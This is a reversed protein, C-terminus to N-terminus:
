YFVLVVGVGSSAMVVVKVIRQSRTLDVSIFFVLMLCAGPSRKSVLISGIGVKM